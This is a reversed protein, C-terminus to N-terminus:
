VFTYIIKFSAIFMLFSTTLTSIAIIRKLVQQSPHLHWTIILNVLIILAMVSPLIIFQQLSVLQDEGWSLSYFLPIQSPLNTYNLAYFTLTLIIMILSSTFSYFNLAEQKQLFNTLKRKTTELDM